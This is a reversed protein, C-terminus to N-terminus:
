DKVHQIGTENILTSHNASMQKVFRAFIDEILVKTSAVIHDVAVQSLSYREKISLIYVAPQRLQEERTEDSVEDSQTTQVDIQPQHDLSSSSM